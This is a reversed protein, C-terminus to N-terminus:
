MKYVCKEMYINEEVDYINELALIYYKFLLNKLESFTRDESTIHNPLTNWIRSTRIKYSKEYTSTKYTPNTM